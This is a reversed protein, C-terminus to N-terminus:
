QTYQQFARQIQAAEYQVQRQIRLVQERDLRWWWFVTLALGALAILAPFLGTRYGAGRVQQGATTASTHGVNVDASTSV